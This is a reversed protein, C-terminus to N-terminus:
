RAEDRSSERQEKATESVQIALSNLRQNLIRADDCSDCKLAYWRGGGHCITEYISINGSCRPCYPYRLKQLFVKLWPGCRATFEVNEKHACQKCLAVSLGGTRPDGLDFHPLGAVTNYTGRRVELWVFDDTERGCHNCARM